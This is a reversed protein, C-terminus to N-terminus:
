KLPEIVEPVPTPVTLPPPNLLWGLKETNSPAVAVAVSRPITVAAGSGPVTPNSVMPKIPNVERRRRALLQKQQLRRATM